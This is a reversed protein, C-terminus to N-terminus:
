SCRGSAGEERDARLVADVREKFRRSGDVYLALSRYRKRTGYAGEITNEKKLHVIVNHGFPSLRTITERDIPTDRAVLEVSRIDNLDIATDGLFGYRVHLTTGTLVIPRRPISKMLGFVQIACYISLGTLIWAAVGSWRGVLFHLATTEVGIAILLAALVAITGTERHYTFTDADHRPMRRFAFCYYFMAAETAFVRSVPGPIIKRSVDKVATLFDLTTGKLKLYEKRAKRVKLVILVIVGTEVLPLIWEKLFTPLTQHEGPLLLTALVIGAVFFPVATIRPVNRGRILLLYVIPVSIALDFAVAFSLLSPDYRFLQPTRAIVAASLIMLAPLGLIIFAPKFAISTKM